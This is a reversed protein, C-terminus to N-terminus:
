EIATRVPESAGPAAGKLYELADDLAIRARSMSGEYGGPLDIGYFSLKTRHSPDDNYARMWRVLEVNEVFDGFGWTIHNRVIQAVDGPGGAVFEEIRRSESFGTELAVATFGHQEVLV